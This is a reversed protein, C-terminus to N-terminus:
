AVSLARVPGFDFFRVLFPPNSLQYHGWAGQEMATTIGTLLLGPTCLRWWMKMLGVPGEEFSEHEQIEDDVDSDTAEPSVLGSAEDASVAREGATPGHEQPGVTDGVDDGARTQPPSAGGPVLEQQEMEASGDTASSTAHNLKGLALQLVIVFFLPLFGQIVFPMVFGGTQFLFGGTPPGLAYSLGGALEAAGMVKGTDEPWLDALMAFLCTQSLAVGLGQLVRAAMFLSYLCSTSAASATQSDVGDTGAAAAASACVGPVLGLVICGASLV